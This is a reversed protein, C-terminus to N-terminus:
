DIYKVSKSKLLQAIADFHNGAIRGCGLVAFRVKRDTVSPRHAHM